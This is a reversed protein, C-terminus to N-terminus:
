FRGASATGVLVWSSHKQASIIFILFHKGDKEFYYISFRKDEYFLCQLVAPYSMKSFDAYVEVDKDSSINRLM